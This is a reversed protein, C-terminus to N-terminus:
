FRLRELDCISFFSFFFFHIDILARTFGAYHITQTFRLCSFSLSPLLAVDTTREKGETVRRDIIVLLAHACPTHEYTHTIIRLLTSTTSRANFASDFGQEATEWEAHHKARSGFNWRLSKFRYVCSVTNLTQFLAISEPTSLKEFRSYSPPLMIQLRRRSASNM